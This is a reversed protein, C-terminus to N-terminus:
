KISVEKKSSGLLISQVKGVDIAKSFRGIAIYAEQKDDLQESMLGNEETIETGDTYRIGSLLLPYFSDLEDYNIGAIEGLHKVDSEDFYLTYSIPSLILRRVTIDCGNISVTKNLKYEVSDKASLKINFSWKGTVLDKTPGAKGEYKQLANFSCILNGDRYDNNPNKQIWIEYDRGSNVEPQKFKDVFSSSISSYPNEGNTFNMQYDMANDETIEMNDASVHFLLYILNDDQITQELTITVGNDSISQGKQESYGENSLKEQMEENAGFRDIARQNWKISALATVSCLMMVAVAALIAYKKKPIRISRENEPLSNLVNCLKDHFEETEEPYSKKWDYINKM